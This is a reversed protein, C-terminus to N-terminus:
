HLIQQLLYFNPYHLLSLNLNVGYLEFAHQLYQDANVNLCSSDANGFTTAQTTSGSRIRCARPDIRRDSTPKRSRPNGHQLETSQEAVNWEV